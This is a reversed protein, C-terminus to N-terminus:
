HCPSWRSRCTSVCEKGVRREESRDEYSLLIGGFPHPTVVMRLTSGDPLHVLEEAQAILTVYKQLVERKYAPFNPYEPFRRRERLAELVDGLHPKGQLFSEDLEWLRAYATNFFMLHLDRGYIAIATSLNELM